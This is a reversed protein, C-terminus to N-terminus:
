FLNNLSPIQEEYIHNIMYELLNLEIIAQSFNENKAYANLSSITTSVNELKEHRVFLHLILQKSEWQASLKNINELLSHIDKNRCDEMAQQTIVFLEQTKQKTYWISLFSLSIIIVLIFSIVILRNM